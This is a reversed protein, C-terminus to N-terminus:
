HAAGAKELDAKILYSNGVVYREGASLGGLVETFHADRRGLSLARWLYHDGDQIFVGTQADLTQLARNDVRLPVEAQEVVIDASVLDGPAFRNDPNDLAVRAIVYPAGADGPTI